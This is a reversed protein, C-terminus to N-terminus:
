FPKNTCVEYRWSVVEDIESQSWTKYYGKHKLQETADNLKSLKQLVLLGCKGFNMNVGNVTEVADPHDELIVFNYPMLLQKNATTVWKQLDDVSILTHDFCMVVVEKDALENMSDALALTFEVPDVFKISIKNNIRAQRAYPCPPWNNLLPNPKEVFDILWQTLQQTIEEQNM